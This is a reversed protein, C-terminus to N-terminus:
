STDRWRQKAENLTQRVVKEVHELEVHDYTGSGSDGFQVTEERHRHRGAAAQEWEQKMNLYYYRLHNEEFRLYALDHGSEPDRFVLNFGYQADEVREKFDGNSRIIEVVRIAADQLEENRLCATLAQLDSPRPILGIERKLVENFTESDTERKKKELAHHVSENVRITKEM